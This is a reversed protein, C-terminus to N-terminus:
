TRSKVYKMSENLRFYSTEYLVPFWVLRLNLDNCNSLLFEFPSFVEWSWLPSGQKVTLYKIQNVPFFPFEKLKNKCKM